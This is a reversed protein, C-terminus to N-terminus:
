ALQPPRPRVGRGAPTPAKQIRCVLRDDEWVEIDLYDDSSFLRQTAIKRAAEDDNETLSDLRQVTYRRDNTYFLFTKM